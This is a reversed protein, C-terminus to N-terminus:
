PQPQSNNNPQRKAKSRGRNLPGIPKTLDINLKSIREKHNDAIAGIWALARDEDMSMKMTQLEKNVIQINDKTYGKSSDIRDVSATQLKTRNKSERHFRIPKGSLACKRDQKEYQEWIDEITIEFILNRSEAQKRINGFTTGSIDKYGQFNTCVVCGRKTGNLLSYHSVECIKGCECQCVWYFKRNARKLVQWKGCQKGTFDIAIQAPTKGQLGVRKVWRNLNARTCGVEKALDAQSIGEKILKQELFEKTLITRYKSPGPHRKPTPIKINFLKCYRRICFNSCGVSKCLERVSVKEVVIKQRLFKKTLIHDYHQNYKSKAM